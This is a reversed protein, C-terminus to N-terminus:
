LDLVIRVRDEVEALTKDTLRGRRSMLRRTSVARLQDPIAYSVETVGGDPPSVAVRIPDLQPRHQTTMPVVVVVESPGRNISNHSIVVAPRRGGQEHGVIPDFETDWVDGRAPPSSSM